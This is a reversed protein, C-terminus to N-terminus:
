AARRVAATAGGAIRTLVADWFQTHEALTPLSDADEGDLFASTQRYLGPKFERDLRDDLEAPKIELSGITQVGLSEMPRLHLRHARTMLEVSWRGPAQWNALYSFLAGRETLGAGCFRSGPPHWDLTGGTWAQWDAPRGGLYFALDIVHSSNTMLLSEYEVAPRLGIGIRHIWETFEFQLSTLGGDDHVIQQAALTSAFFRRNYAIFIDAGTEAAVQEIKRLAARDSAGPKEILLRRTGARLLQASVDALMSLNVAVIAAQPAVGHRDLYAEVGGTLADLGTADRFKAASEAGRGVVDFERQQVSLVKAYAQAMAGCGILALSAKAMM